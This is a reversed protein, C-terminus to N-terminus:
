RYVGGLVPAIIIIDSPLEVVFIDFDKYILAVPVNVDLVLAHFEGFGVVLALCVIYAWPYAPSVAIIGAVQGAIVVAAIVVLQVKGCGPLHFFVHLYLEARFYEIFEFFLFLGFFCLRFLSEVSTIPLFFVSSLSIEKLLTNIYIVQM